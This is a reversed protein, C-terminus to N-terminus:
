WSKSFGFAVTFPDLDAAATDELELEMVTYDIAGSLGWGHDGLPWDLGLRLGYLFVDDTRVTTSQAPLDLPPFDIFIPLGPLSPLGGLDVRTDIQLDDVFAYGVRPGLFVDVGRGPTLHYNAGLTVPMWELSAEVDTVFSLGLFDVSLQQNAELEAQGIGFELGWRNNLRREFGVYLGAGEDFDEGGFASGSSSIWQGHIRVTWDGEGAFTAPAILALTIVLALHLRHFQSM